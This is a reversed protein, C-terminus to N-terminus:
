FQLRNFRLREILHEEKNKIQVQRIPSKSQRFYKMRKRNEKYRFTSYQSQHKLLKHFITCKNIEACQHKKFRGSIKMDIKQTPEISSLSRNATLFEGTGTKHMLRVATTNLHFLWLPRQVNISQSKGEERQLDIAAYERRLESVVRRQQHSSGCLCPRPPKLSPLLSSHLLLLLRKNQSVSTSSKSNITFTVTNREITFQLLLM